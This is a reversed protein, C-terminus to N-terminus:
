QLPSKTPLSAAVDVDNGVDGDVINPQSPVSLIQKRANTPWSHRDFGIIHRGLRMSRRKGHPRHVRVILDDSQYVIAARLLEIPSRMLVVRRFHGKVAHGAVALQALRLEIRLTAQVIVVPASRYRAVRAAAILTPGGSAWPCQALEKRRHVV